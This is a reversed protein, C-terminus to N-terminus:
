TQTTLAFAVEIVLGLGLQEPLAACRNNRCLSSLFM